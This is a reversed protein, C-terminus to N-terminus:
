KYLELLIASFALRYKSQILESEATLFADKSQLFTFYDITEELFQIESAHYLEQYSTYSASASRVAERLNELEIRYNLLQNERQRTRERNELQVREFEM